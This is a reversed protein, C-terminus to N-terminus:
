LKDDDPIPLKREIRKVREPTHKKFLRKIDPTFERVLLGTADSSLAGEFRNMTDGFTRDHRPYYANQLSSAFLSGLFEASNFTSYGSDSRGVVVRTAAYWARDIFRKKCSPFYRPDQHLITSLAFSQIFRRSETDASIAGFRKGFGVTGSGYHPWQDTAQAWAAGYGIAVFTYPSYTQRLFLIFKCHPSVAAYKAGPRDADTINDALKAICETANAAKRQQNTSASSISPGISSATHAAAGTNPIAEQAVITLRTTVALLLLLQLLIRMSVAGISHARLM